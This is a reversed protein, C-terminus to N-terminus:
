KSHKTTTININKDSLELMQMTKNKIDMSPKLNEQKETHQTDKSQIMPDQSTTNPQSVGHPPHQRQKLKSPGNPNLLLNGVAEQIQPELTLEAKLAKATSNPDTRWM